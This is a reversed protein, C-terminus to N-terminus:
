LLELLLLLYLSVLTTLILTKLFNQAFLIAKYLLNCKLVNFLSPIVFSRKSVISSVIELFDYSEVKQSTIFGNKILLLLNPLKLFGKVDGKSNLSFGISASLLLILIEWHLLVWQLIYVLNLLFFYIWFLLFKFIVIMSMLEITLLRFLTTQSSFFIYCLDVPRDTRSSFTIWDKHQINSYVFVFKNVTPNTPLVNEINSSVSDFVACMSSSLSQYLTFFYCVSHLSAMSFCLVWALHPPHPLDVRPPSSSSNQWPSKTIPQHSDSLTHNQGDSGKEFSFVFNQIYQM